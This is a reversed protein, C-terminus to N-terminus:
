LGSYVPNQRYRSVVLAQQEEMNHRLLNYTHAFSALRGVLRLCVARLDQLASLHFLCYAACFSPPAFCCTPPTLNQPHPYVWCFFLPDATGLVSGAILGILLGSPVCASTTARYMHSCVTPAISGAPCAENGTCPLQTVSDPCYFGPCPPAWDSGLWSVFVCVFAGAPCENCNAQGRLPQISGLPCVRCGQGGSASQSTGVGCPVCATAAPLQTFSGPKCPTCQACYGESNSLCATGANCPSSCLSDTWPYGALCAVCTLGDKARVCQALTPSTLPSRTGRGAVRVPATYGPLCSDCDSQNANAVKGNCSACVSRTNRNSVTGKPCQDCASRNQM